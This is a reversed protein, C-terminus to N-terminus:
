LRAVVRRLAIANVHEKCVILLFDKKIGVAKPNNGLM